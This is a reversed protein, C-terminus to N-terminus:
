SGHEGCTAHDRVLEVVVVVVGDDVACQGSTLEDSVDGEWSDSDAAM